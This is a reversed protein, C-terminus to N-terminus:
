LWGREVKADDKQLQEREHRRGSPKEAISDFCPDYVATTFLM